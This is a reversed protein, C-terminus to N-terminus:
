RSKKRKRIVRRRGRKAAFRRRLMQWCKRLAAKYERAKKKDCPGSLQVTVEHAEGAKLEDFGM